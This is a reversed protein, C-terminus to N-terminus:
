NSAAFQIQCVILYHIGRDMSVKHQVLNKIYMMKYLRLESSSLPLYSQCDSSLPRLPMALAILTVSGYCYSPSILRLPIDGLHRKMTGPGGNMKYVLKHIFLVDLQNDIYSYTIVNKENRLISSYSFYLTIKRKKFRIPIYSLM